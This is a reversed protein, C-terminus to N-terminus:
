QTLKILASCIQRLIHMIQSVGIFFFESLNYIIFHTVFRFPLFFYSYIIIIIVVIIILLILLLLSNHAFCKFHTYKLISVNHLRHLCNGKAVGVEVGTAKCDGCNSGQSTDSLAILFHM